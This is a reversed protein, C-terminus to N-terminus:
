TFARLIQALHTRVEDQGEPSVLHSMECIVIHECGATRYQDLETSIESPTGHLIYDHAVSAPIRAYAEKAERGSIAALPVYDGGARGSLPHEFGRARFYSETKYLAVGKLRTSEILRHCDEHTRGVVLWTFMAAVINEPRRGALSAAERIAELGDRYETASLRTPFWGDGFKATVALMRPGHASIWIPPSVGHLPALNVMAKELKWFRGAFDVAGGKAFMLRVIQMAEEFRAALKDAPIGNPILGDKAGTGLGLIFRGGSLHQLTLATRALLVPHRRFPDTVGLGISPLVTRVAAAGLFPMPDYQGSTTSAPGTEGDMKPLDVPFYESSNDPWWVSSAEISDAWEAFALSETAPPISPALFGIKLKTQM